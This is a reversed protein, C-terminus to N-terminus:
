IDLWNLILDHWEMSSLHNVHTQRQPFHTDANDLQDIGLRSSCPSNEVTFIDSLRLEDVIADNPRLEDFDAYRQQTLQVRAIESAVKAWLIM